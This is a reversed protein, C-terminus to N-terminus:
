SVEEGAKSLWRSILAAWRQPENEALLQRAIDKVKPLLQSHHALHTIKMNTKTGAQSQGLLEGLGRLDLDREKRNEHGPAALSGWFNATSKPKTTYCCLAGKDGIRRKIIRTKSETALRTNLGASRRTAPAM